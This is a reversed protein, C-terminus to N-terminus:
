NEPILLSPLLQKATVCGSMILRITTPSIVRVQELLQSGRMGPMVQDSLVADPERARVAELAAKPDVFGTVDWDGCMNRLM